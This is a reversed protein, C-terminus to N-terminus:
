PVFRRRRARRRPSLRAPWAAGTLDAVLLVVGATVVAAGAIVGLGKWCGPSGAPSTTVCRVLAAPTAAPSGSNNGTSYNSGPGPAVEPAPPSTPGAVAPSSPSGAPVQGPQASPSSLTAPAAFGASFPNAYDPAPQVSVTAGGLDVDLGGAGQAASLGVNFVTETPALLNGLLNKLQACDSGNGTQAALIQELAPVGAAVPRLVTNDTPSGTFHVDLPSMSLSGTTADVTRVPPSVSVGFVELVKNVAAFVAAVSDTSPLRIPLGAPALIV